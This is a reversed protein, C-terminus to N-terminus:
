LNQAFDPGIAGVFSAFLVAFVALPTYSGLSGLLATGLLALLLLTLLDGLCAAVPTAINDPDVAFRRCVVILSAMFAGLVIGFCVAAYHSEVNMRPEISTSLLAGARQAFDPRDSLVASGNGLLPATSMSALTLAARITGVIEASAHPRM